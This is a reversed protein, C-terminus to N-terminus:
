FHRQSTAVYASTLAINIVALCTLDWLLLLNGPVENHKLRSYTVFLNFHRLVGQGVTVYAVGRASTRAQSGRGGYAFM